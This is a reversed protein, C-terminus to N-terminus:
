TASRTGKPIEAAYDTAMPFRGAGSRPATPEFLLTRAGVWRWRGGPEPRLRVPLAERALDEHTTLAVMPQSFTVGLHPALAVEGEPARRLVELPGAAGPDPAPREEPPPFAGKVTRGTRPPPLSSERLAFPQEDAPEAVLPALRDLVKQAESDSLAVAPAPAARLPASPEEEAESLRFSFGPVAALRSPNGSGAALSAAVLTLLWHWSRM